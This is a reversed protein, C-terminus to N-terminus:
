VVLVSLPMDASLARLRGTVVGSNIDDELNGMAASEEQALLKFAACAQPLCALTNAQHRGRVAAGLPKYCVLPHSVVEASHRNEGREVHEGALQPQEQRYRRTVGGDDPWRGADGQPHQQGTSAPQPRADEDAGEEEVGEM